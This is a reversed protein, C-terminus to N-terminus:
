SSGECAAEESAYHESRRTRLHQFVVCV